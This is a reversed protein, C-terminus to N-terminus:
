RVDMADASSTRRRHELALLLEAVLVQEWTRLWKMVGQRSGHMEPLEAEVAHTEHLSVPAEATM